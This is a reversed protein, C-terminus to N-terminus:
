KRVERINLIRSVALLALINILTVLHNSVIGSSMAYHETMGIDANSKQHFKRVGGARAGHTYRSILINSLWFRGLKNPRQFISVRFFDAFHYEVLNKNKRPELSGVLFRVWTLKTTIRQPINFWSAKGVSSGHGRSSYQYILPCSKITFLVSM